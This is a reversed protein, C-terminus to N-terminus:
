TSPLGLAAISAGDKAPTQPTLRRIGTPGWLSAGFEGCGRSIERVPPPGFIRTVRGAKGFSLHSRGEDKRCTLRRREGRPPACNAREERASGGLTLRTTRSFTLWLWSCDGLGLRVHQDLAPLGSPTIRADIRDPVCVAMAVRGVLLVPDTLGSEVLCNLVRKGCAIRWRGNRIWVDM